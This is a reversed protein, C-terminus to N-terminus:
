KKEPIPILCIFEFPENYPNKYQHLEGPAVYAFMGPNAEFEGDETVLLGKGKVFYNEHEWDHQHWPSHGGAEITFYRMRFNEAGEKEGILVKKNTKIIEKGDDLDESFVNKVKDLYM